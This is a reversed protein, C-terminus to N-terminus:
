QFSGAVGNRHYDFVISTRTSAVTPHASLFLVFGRIASSDQVSIHIVFDDAGGLFFIQLVQPLDRVEHSFRTISEQRAGPRLTVGIIAQLTLGLSRQDISAMFDTIVGRDVLSRLRTHATSPAVGLATALAVNSIRGDVRLVEIMRLDLDDLVTQERIIKSPETNM